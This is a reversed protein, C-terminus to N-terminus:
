RILRLSSLARQREEKGGPAIGFAMLQGDYPGGTEHVAIVPLHAAQARALASALSTEDPVCLAVAHTGPRAPGSEGAAHVIFASQIGRPLDDRVVVYHFEAAEEATRRDPSESCSRHCGWMSCVVNLGTLPEKRGM